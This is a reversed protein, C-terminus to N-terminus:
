SPMSAKWRSFLCYKVDLCPLLAVIDQDFCANLRVKNAQVDPEGDLMVDKKATQQRVRRLCLEVYVLQKLAIHAVVFFFRSLSSVPVSCYSPAAITIEPDASETSEAFYQAEHINNTDAFVVQSFHRILDALFMEPTPHLLYVTNIAEEAVSYWVVEQLGDKCIISSLLNFIKHNHGLRARDEDPLRQLAICAFRALLVDEKARRGFGIDMISQVNSSLISPCTKAGM